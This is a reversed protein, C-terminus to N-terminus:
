HRNHPNRSSASQKVSEQEIENAITEAELKVALLQLFWLPQALYEQYTWGFEQCISIINFRYDARGKKNRL